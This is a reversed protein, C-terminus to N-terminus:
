SDCKKGRVLSQAVRVFYWLAEFCMVHFVKDGVM